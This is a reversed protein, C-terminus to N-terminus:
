FFIVQIPAPPKANQKKTEDLLQEVGKATKETNRETKKVPEGNTRDAGKLIASFAEATGRMLAPGATRSPQKSREKEIEGIAKESTEDDKRNLDAIDVSNRLRRRRNMEAAEAADSKAGIRGLAKEATDEDKRNLGSIDVTDRLRRRRKAEEAALKSEKAEDEDPAVPVDAAREKVAEPAEPRENKMQDVVNRGLALGRGGFFFKAIASDQEPNGKGQITDNVGRLGAAIADLGKGGATGAAFLGGITEKLNGIDETLGKLPSRMKEAAGGVKGAVIDLIAQQAGLVDGAEAMAKISEKEAETLKEKGIRLRDTAELPNALARGLNEVEQKLDTGFVRSLDASLQIADTFVKGHINGFTSLEAQADTFAEDSIGTLRQLADSYALIQDKTFGTTNGTAELVAGLRAESEAAEEAAQISSKAFNVAESVGFGIGLAGAAGKLGGIGDLFGGKSEKFEQNLKDVAKRHQEADLAGKRHLVSLGELSQKYAEIPTRSEKIIRNATTIESRTAVLGKLDASTSVKYVLSHITTGAM